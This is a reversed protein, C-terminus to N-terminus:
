PVVGECGPGGFTRTVALSTGWGFWGQGAAPALLTASTSWGPALGVAVGFAPTVATRFGDGSSLSTQAALGARLVAAGARWSGWAEYFAEHMAHPAVLNVAHVHATSVLPALADLVRVGLRLRGPPAWTAGAGLMVMAHGAGLGQAADGTPLHGAVALYFSGDGRAVGRSAALSVDGLGSRRQRDFYVTYTPVLASLTVGGGVAASGELSLRALDGSGETRSIAGYGSDLQVEVHGPQSACAVVCDHAGARLPAALASALAALALFRPARHDAM